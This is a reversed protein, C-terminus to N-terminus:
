RVLFVAKIFTQPYLMEQTGMTAMAHKPMLWKLTPYSNRTNGTQQEHERILTLSAELFTEVPQDWQKLCERWKM